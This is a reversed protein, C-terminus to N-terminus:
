AICVYEHSAREIVKTIAMLVIICIIIATLRNGTLRDCCVQLMTLLFHTAGGVVIIAYKCELSNACATFIHFLEQVHLLSLPLNTICISRM